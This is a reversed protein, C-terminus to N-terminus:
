TKLSGPRNAALWHTAFAVADAATFCRVTGAGLAAATVRGEAEFAAGCAGFDNSDYGPAVYSVWRRAGNVNLPAGEAVPQMVGAHHEALHFITATDFGTGLFLVKGNNNLLAELPSAAGFACELRQGSLLREAQPGIAVFSDKPHASRRAGPWNRAAEAFRGVGWSRTTAPDFAPMEARVIPWWEEPVPPRSWLSPESLDSSFAPVLLTGSRETGTPGLAALVARVLTTAEGLVWGFASVSAHALVVDGSVVGAQAIAATVMRPTIPIDHKAITGM